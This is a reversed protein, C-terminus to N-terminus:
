AVSQLATEYALSGMHEWLYYGLLMIDPSWPHWSVVEIGYRLDSIVASLNSFNNCCKVAEISITFSYVQKKHKNGDVAEFTWLKL